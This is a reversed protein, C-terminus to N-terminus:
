PRGTVTPRVPQTYNVERLGSNANTYASTLPSSAVSQRFFEDEVRVLMHRRVGVGVAPLRWLPAGMRRLEKMM